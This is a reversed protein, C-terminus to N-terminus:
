GRRRLFRSARFIRREETEEPPQQPRGEAFFEDAAHNEGAAMGEERDVEEDIGSRDSATTPAEPPRGEISAPEVEPEEVEPEPAPERHPEGSPASPVELRRGGSETVSEAGEALPGSAAPESREGLGREDLGREDRRREGGQEELEREELGYAEPARETSEDQLGRSEDLGRTEAAQRATAVSELDLRERLSAEIEKASAVDANDMVTLYSKLLHRFDNAFDQKAKRLVEYSEQVREVRGSSDALIRHSQEKAERVILEAEKGANRRLDQAVQQAQVLAEQISAELEEFQQLRERLSTIEELMRQNEAFIREFEDAVEDLFDDVQNADYGRLGSKFEKRRIDIPRIAM